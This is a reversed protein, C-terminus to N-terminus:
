CYGDFVEIRLCGGDFSGVWLSRVFIIVGLALLTELVVAATGSAPASKFVLLTEVEAVNTLSKSESGITRELIRAISVILVFQSFFSISLCRLEEQIDKSANVKPIQKLVQYESFRYKM